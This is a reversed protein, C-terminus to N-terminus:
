VYMSAVTTSWISFFFIAEPPPTYPTSSLTPGSNPESASVRLILRSLDFFTIKTPDQKLERPGMQGKGFVTM